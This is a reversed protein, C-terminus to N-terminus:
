LDTKTNRSSGRSIRCEHMIKPLTRKINNLITYDRYRSPPIRTNERVLREDKNCEGKRDTGYKAEEIVRKCAEVM